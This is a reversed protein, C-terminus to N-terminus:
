KSIVSISFQDLPQTDKEWPRHYVLALTREGTTLVQYTLTVTGSSGIMGPNKSIYVPDGVPKFFTSDLVLAEWNYGTSPNGELQITITGGPKIEVQSGNDASTLTIQIPKDACATFLIAIMCLLQVALSNEKKM